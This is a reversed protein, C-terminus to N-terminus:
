RSKRVNRKCVTWLDMQKEVMREKREDLGRQIGKKNMTENYEIAKAAKVGEIFPEISNRVYWVM